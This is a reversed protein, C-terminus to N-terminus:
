YYTFGELFTFTWGISGIMYFIWLYGGRYFLPKISPDVGRIKLFKLFDLPSHFYKISWFRSPNTVLWLLWFRFIQSSLKCTGQFGLSRSTETLFNSGDRPTALPNWMGSVMVHFLFSMCSRCFWVFRRGPGEWVEKFVVAISQHKKGEVLWPAGFALSWLSTFSSM